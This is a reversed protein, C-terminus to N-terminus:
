EAYLKIYDIEDLVLLDLLVTDDIIKMLDPIIDNGERIQEQNFELLDKTVEFCEPYEFQNSYARNIVELDDFSIQYYTMKYIYIGNKRYM